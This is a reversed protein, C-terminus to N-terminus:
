VKAGCNGCFVGGEELKEGCNPCFEPANKAGCNECFRNGPRLPAGCNKCFANATNVTGAGGETDAGSDAPVMYKKPDDKLINAVAWEPSVFLWQPEKLGPFTLGISGDETVVLFEDEELPTRSDYEGAIEHLEDAHFIAGSGAYIWERCSQEAVGIAAAFSGAMKMDM